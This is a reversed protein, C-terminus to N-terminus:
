ECQLLKDILNLLFPIDKRANAIFELDDEKPNSWNNATITYGGSVICASEIFEDYPEDMYYKEIKWNGKTAKQERTKIQNIRKLDRKNM